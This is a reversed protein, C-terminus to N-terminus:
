QQRWGVTWWWWWGWQQEMKCVTNPIHQPHRPPPTRNSTNTNRRPPPTRCATNANRSTPPPPAKHETNPHRWPLAQVHRTPMTPPDQVCHRPPLPPPSAYPSSPPLWAQMHHPLPPLLSKRPKLPLACPHPNHPPSAPTQPGPVHSLSDRYCQDSFSRFSFFLFFCIKVQTGAFSAIATAPSALSSPRRMTSLHPNSSGARPTFLRQLM